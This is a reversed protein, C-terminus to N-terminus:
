SRWQERYPVTHFCSLQVVSPASSLEMFSEFSINDKVKQLVANHHKLMLDTWVISTIMGDSLQMRVGTIFLCQVEARESTDHMALSKAVYFWWAMWSTSELLAEAITELDKIATSTFVVSTKSLNTLVPFIQHSSSFSSSLSLFSFGDGIAIGPSFVQLPLFFFAM